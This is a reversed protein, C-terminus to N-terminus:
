LILTLYNASAPWSCTELLWGSMENIKLGPLVMKISRKNKTIDANKLLFHNNNYRYKGLIIM